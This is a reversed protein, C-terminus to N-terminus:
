AYAERILEAEAQDGAGAHFRELREDKKRAWAVEGEHHASFRVLVTREYAILAARLLAARNAPQSVLVSQVLEEAIKLDREAQDMQGLNPGTQLQSGPEGELRKSKTDLPQGM